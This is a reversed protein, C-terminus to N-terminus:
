KLLLLGAMLSVLLSHVAASVLPTSAAGSSSPSPPAGEDPSTPMDVLREGCERPWERFASLESDSVSHVAQEVGGCFMGIYDYGCYRSLASGTAPYYYRGLARRCSLHALGVTAHRTRTPPFLPQCVAVHPTGILPM